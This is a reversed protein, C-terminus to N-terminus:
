IHKFKDKMKSIEDFYEDVIPLIKKTLIESMETVKKIDVIYKSSNYYDEVLSPQFILDGVILIFQFLFNQNEEDNLKRNGIWWDGRASREHSLIQAWIDVIKNFVVYQKYDYYSYMIYSQLDLLEQRREDHSKTTKLHLIIDTLYLLLPTVIYKTDMYGCISFTKTINEIAKSYSKILPKSEQINRYEKQFTIPLNYGTVGALSRKSVIYKYAPDIDFFSTFLNPIGNFINKSNEHFDTIFDDSLVPDSIYRMIQTKNLDFESVSQLRHDNIFDMLEIKVSQFVANYQEKLTNKMITAADIERLMKLKKNRSFMFGPNEPIIVKDLENHLKVLKKELESVKEIITKDIYRIYYTVSSIRGLRGGGLIQIANRESRDAYEKYSEELDSIPLETWLFLEKIEDIKQSPIYSERQKTIVKDTLNDNISENM